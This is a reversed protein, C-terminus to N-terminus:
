SSDVQIHTPQAAEEVLRCHGSKARWQPMNSNEHQHCIGALLRWDHLRCKPRIMAYWWESSGELLWLYPGSEM